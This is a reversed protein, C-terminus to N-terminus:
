KLNQEETDKLDEKEEDQQEKPKEEESQKKTLHLYVALSAFIAVVVALAFAIVIDGQSYAVDNPQDTENGSWPPSDAYLLYPYEFFTDNELSLRVWINRVDIWYEGPELMFHAIDDDDTRTVTVPSSNSNSDNYIRIIVLEQHPDYDNTGSIKVSLSCIGDECPCDAFVGNISFLSTVLITVLFLNCLKMLLSFIIPM